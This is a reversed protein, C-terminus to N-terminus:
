ESLIRRKLERAPNGGVVTWPEVNKFVAARAGVVAGEGISVGMGVFADAAIWASPGISIGKMVLEHKRSHINHSATCLFVNESVISESKIEIIGPNYCRVNKDILTYDHMILNWPAWIRVSNAISCGKGIKAGFCKLIAVRLSNLYKTPLMRFVLLYTTNWVLRGLKNYISLRNKYEHIKYDEVM